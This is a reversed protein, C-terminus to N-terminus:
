DEKLISILEAYGEMECFNQLYYDCDTGGVTKLRNWDKCAGETDGMSYKCMGRSALLCKDCPQYRMANNYNRLAAKPKQKIFLKKTARSFYSRAKNLFYTSDKELADPNACFCLSVEKCMDVAFKNNSGPQWLGNTKKLAEIVVEDIEPSVSNIIKFDAINGESTVVFQIVETGEDFSIAAEEPYQVAAALYDEITNDNPQELIKVRETNGVFKPPMVEVEEINIEQDIQGFIPLAFLLFLTIILSHKM